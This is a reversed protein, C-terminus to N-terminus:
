FWVMETILENKKTEWKINKCHQLTEKSSTCYLIIHHFFNIDQSHYPSLLIKDTTLITLVILTM